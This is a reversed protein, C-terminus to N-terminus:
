AELVYRHNCCDDGQMLTKTRIMTMRPNFATSAAYDAHCIAAYGIDAANRSRFSKAWLCQSVHIEFANAREEVVDFVLASRYVPQTKMYLAFTALDRAPVSAAARSVSETAAQSAADRLAALFREPGIENSLKQLTAAYGGYAFDFVQRWTMDAQAAGLVAPRTAPSASASQAACVAARTCAVCAAAGAPVMRLVNRRTLM